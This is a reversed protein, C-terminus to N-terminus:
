KYKKDGIFICYHYAKGDVRLILMQGRGREIGLKSSSEQMIALLLGAAAGIPMSLWWWGAILERWDISHSETWYM